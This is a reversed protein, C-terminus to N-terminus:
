FSVSDTKQGGDGSRASRLDRYGDAYQTSVRSSHTLVIGLISAGVSRLEIAADEMMSRTSRRQDVVLLVSDVLSAVSLADSAGFLPTADVLVFDALGELETVVARMRPSGILESPNAVSRGTSVVFVNKISTDEVADAVAIHGSLTEALGHSREGFHRDLGPRHLDGSVLIVRKGIEALAAALNVATTSKGEEHASSTIMITKIPQKSAAFL